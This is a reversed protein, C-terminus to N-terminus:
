LRWRMLMEIVTSGVFVLSMSRRCGGRRQLAEGGPKLDDLETAGEFFREQLATQERKREERELREKKQAETEEQDDTPVPLFAGVPSPSTEKPRAGQYRRCRRRKQVAASERGKEPGAEEQGAQGARRRGDPHGGRPHRHRGTKWDVSAPEPESAIAELATADGDRLTLSPFSVVEAM